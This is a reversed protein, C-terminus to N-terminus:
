IGVKRSEVQLVGSDNYVFAVVAAKDAKVGQPLKLKHIFTKEGNADLSISEGWDGNLSARFVHNHVHDQKLVDDPYQQLAVIGDEVLWLQLKGAIGKTLAQATASVQLERNAANYTTALKLNMASEGEFATRIKAAWGDKQSGARQRNVLANPASTAYGWHEAYSNGLTTALGKPNTAPMLALKGGHIAVVILSDAGYQAQLRALEEAAAPCNSCRQGTIEEVLVKRKAATAPVEILRDNPAIDNCSGLFLAALLIHLPKIHM